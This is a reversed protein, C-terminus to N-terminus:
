SPGNLTWSPGKSLFTPSFRGTKQLPGAQGPSGEISFKVGEGTTQSRRQSFLSCGHPKEWEKNLSLSTLM